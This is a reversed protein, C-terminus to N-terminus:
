KKKEQQKNESNKPSQIIVKRDPAVTSIAHKYILQQKRNSGLVVTFNDFGIISGKLQVGNTLYITVPIKDKQVQNLFYSQLNIKNSM